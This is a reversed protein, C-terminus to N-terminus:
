DVHEPEPIGSLCEVKLFLRSKPDSRRLETGNRLTNRADQGLIFAIQDADAEKPSLKKRSRVSIAHAQDTFHDECLFGHPLKGMIGNPGIKSTAAVEGCPLRGPGAPDGESHICMRAKAYAKAKNLDDRTANAFLRVM